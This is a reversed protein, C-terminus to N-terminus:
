WRMETRLEAGWAPGELTEQRRLGLGISLARRLWEPKAAYAAGFRLADGAPGTRQFGLTPTLLGRLRRSEIGYGLEANLTMGADAAAFPPAPGTAPMAGRGWVFNSAGPRGWSPALSAFLGTGDPAAKVTLTAAAGSERYDAGGALAMSRGRLEFEMRTGAYRLGAEGEYGAEATDGGGDYRANIRVYPSFRGTGAVEVGARARHAASDLEALAAEGDVDLTAAGVDALVSIRVAEFDALAHRLGAAGLRMGLDGRPVDGEAGDRELTAAGSGAGLMAWLETGGPLAGRAYPYVAALDTTLRGAGPADGAFTYKAQGRGRSLALGGLWREGFRRDAGLYATRWEGDFRSAGGGGSFNQVDGMGWVTLGSLPSPARGDREEGASPAVSFAFSRNWLNGGVAPAGASAGGPPMAHGAPLGGPPEMGEGSARGRGADFGAGPWAAAAPGSDPPAWPGIPGAAPGGPAAPGGAPAPLGLLASLTALADIDELAPLARAESDSAAMRAGVVGAAGSLLSRSLGDLALGLAEAEEDSVAKVTVAFTVSAAGGPNSATVTIRAAGVAEGRLRAAAGAAEAAGGFSAVSADSSAFAFVLDEGALAASADVAIDRGGAVLEIDPLAGALAPAAVTTRAAATAWASEGDGLSRVRVEYASRAALGDIAAGASTGRHPHDTWEGVQRDEARRYQVEYGDLRAGIDSPATWDLEIRDPGTAAATVGAPAGPPEEVNEVTVTVAFGRNAAPPADRDDRGGGGAAAVFTYEAQREYDLTVGEAIHLAGNADIAFARHDAGRSSLSLARGGAGDLLGGLWGVAAGAAHNEAVAFGAAGGDGDARGVLGALVDKVTIELSTQSGASIGEPLNDTDIAVTFKEDDTDKDISTGVWWTSLKRGGGIRRPHAGEHVDGPETDIGTVNVPITIEEWFNVPAPASLVVTLEASSGEDVRLSKASLSVRVGKTGTGPDVTASDEITIEASSPSGITLWTLWGYQDAQELHVRFREDDPDTDRYTQVTFEASTEGAPVRVLITTERVDEDEDPDHETTIGSVRVLIDAGLGGSSAPVPRSFVLSLRAEEGEAVSADIARLTVTSTEDDVIDIEVSAPSGARVYPPLDASDLSVTFREGHGDDDQNAQIGVQGTTDGADIRIGAPTEYDGPEATDEAKGEGAIGYRLPITVAVALAETLTATLAVSSGEAVNGPASLSVSPRGEDDVITVVASSPSGATVESPLSGLAATLTEDDQDADQNTRITLTGRSQGAPIAISVPSPLSYDGSEATGATVTVPITVAGPLLSSLRATVTGADGELVAEDASLSVSPTEDDDIVIRVSGPDGVALGSPLAGFLVTFAEDDNDADQNATITGTGSTQGAAIAISSLASYDGAEATVRRQRLPVAVDSSLAEALTATVTVAQGEAVTAPSASLSVATEDDEITIQVSSPSGVLADATPLRGISVTFTEDDADADHRTSITGTASTEGAGISIFDRTGTDTREATGRRLTLPVSLRRALPESLTVTLTVRSGEPVPNPAASLRVKPRGEDDAITIRVSSPSGAVVGTPLTGLSVTFSEDNEGADNNTAIEGSGSVAGAAITISALAGIDGSEATNPAATSITVPITAASALPRSATATVTVAQGEPVPNPSASLTIAPLSPTGSGFAWVGDGVANTARVRVRYATGNALGTINQAATPPSTETRSVAVWAASADSGSAAASDAVTGAVASTYHVDYGTLTGSPATWSLNLQQSRPKVKLNAPAAPVNARTVTVTYTKTTTGDAATVEVTVANEGMSLPIAASATGSTVTALSSGKGVKVTASANNVTPTIKLHTTTVPVTATYATVSASFTSPDLTLASFAGAASTGASATLASLTADETPSGPETLSLSVTDGVSWGPNNSWIMWAGSTTADAIVYSNSTGVVNLTLGTLATKAAAGTLGSFWVELNTRGPPNALIGAFTYTTGGHTFDDDSLTAATSCKNATTSHGNNCGRGTASKVNLTASWVTTTQAEAPAAAFLSLM